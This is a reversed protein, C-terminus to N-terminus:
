KMQIKTDSTEEVETSQELSPGCAPGEVFFENGSLDFAGYLNELAGKPDLTRVKKYNQKDFTNNFASEKRRM